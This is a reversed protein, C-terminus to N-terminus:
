FSLILIVELSNNNCGYMYWNWGEDLFGKNAMSPSKSLSGGSVLTWFMLYQFSSQGLSIMYIICVRGFRLSWQPLPFTFLTHNLPPPHSRPFIIKQGCCCLQTYSSVTATIAYVFGQLALFSCVEAPSPLQAYLELWPHPVIPM